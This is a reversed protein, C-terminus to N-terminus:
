YRLLAAVGGAPELREAAEGQLATVSAGSELAMRVMQEASGNESEEGSLVGADLVLQEVRAERLAALTEDAGSSGREGGAGREIAREALEAEERATAREVSEAVNAEVEENPSSILDVEEGARLPLSSARM